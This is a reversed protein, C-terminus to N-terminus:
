GAYERWAAIAGDRVRVIACGPRSTWADGDGGIEWTYTVAFREGDGFIGDVTFRWPPAGRFFASWHAAIAARGAVPARRTEQYVGDPAFFAAAGAADGARWRNFLEEFDAASV